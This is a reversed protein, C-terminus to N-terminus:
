EKTVENKDQLWIASVTNVKDGNLEVPFSVFNSYKKIIEKISDSIQQRAASSLSKKEITKSKKPATKKARKSDVRQQQDPTLRDFMKPNMVTKYDGVKGVEVKDGAKEFVEMAQRPSINDRQMTSSDVVKTPVFITDNKGKKTWQIRGDLHTTAKYIIVDGDTTTRKFEETKVPVQGDIYRPKEKKTDVTENMSDLVMRLNITALRAPQREMSM